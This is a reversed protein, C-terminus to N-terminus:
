AGLFLQAFPLPFLSLSLFFPQSNPTQGSPFTEKSHISNRPFMAYHIRPAFVSLSEVSHTTNTPTKEKKEREERKNTQHSSTFYVHTYPTHPRAPYSVIQACRRLM